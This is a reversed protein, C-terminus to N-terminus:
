DISVGRNNKRIGAVSDDAAPGMAISGRDILVMGYPTPEAFSAGGVGTVEGGAGSRKMGACSAMSFLVVMFAVGRVVTAFLGSAYTSRINRM